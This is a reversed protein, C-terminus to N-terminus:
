VRAYNRLRRALSTSPPPPAGCWDLISCLKWGCSTHRDQRVLCLLVWSQSAAPVMLVLLCVVALRFVSDERSNRTAATISAHGHYKKSNFSSGLLETTSVNPKVGRFAFRSLAHDVQKHFQLMLHFHPQEAQNLEMTACWSPLQASVQIMLPWFRCLTSVEMRCLLSFPSVLIGISSPGPHQQRSSMLSSPMGAIVWDMTGLRTSGVVRKHHM